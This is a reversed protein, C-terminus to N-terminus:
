ARGLEIADSTRTRTRRRKRTRRRSRSRAPRARSSEAKPEDELPIKFEKPDIQLTASIQGKTEAGHESRTSASARASCRRLRHRERRGAQLQEVSLIKGPLKIKMEIKLDDLDVIPRADARPGDRDARTEEDSMEELQEFMADQSRRSTGSNLVVKAVNPQDTKYFRPM